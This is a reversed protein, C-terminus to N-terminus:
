RENASLRAIYKPATMLYLDRSVITSPGGAIQKVVEVALQNNAGAFEQRSLQIRAAPKASGLLSATLYSDDIKCTIEIPNATDNIFKLDAGGDWVTADLGPAVTQMTRQHPVRQTIKLGALLADQYLASSIVCIGGGPTSYSGTGIYSPAAYFGAAVTRPGVRGNFSFEENPRLIVGDIREAAKQINLRQQVTLSSVSIKKSTLETGFPYTCLYVGYLIVPVVLMWLQNVRVTKKM